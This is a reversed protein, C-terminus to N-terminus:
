LREGLYEALAGFGVSVQKEEALDKVTAEGAELEKEGIIVAYRAGSDAAFSLTKGVGKGILELVICADLNDRLEEAVKIAKASVGGLPIVVVDVSRAKFEYEQQELASLLRDFGFAFGVAPTDPGGFSSILNDYRGGGAIQDQAGLGDVKVDFVMGTYYDLGRAAGFDVTYDVTDNLLICLEKFNDLEFRTKELGDVIRQADAFVDFGGSLGALEMFREDGVKEGVEEMLGRDMLSIIIGCEDDSVGLEVLMRRLVGLHNLRLSYNLGFSKMCRSALLVVEADALPCAAGLLEVGTQYFERYRNKQPREYRFMAGHYFLRLPKPLTRLQQSYFRAVSATGEPRLCIDRGGKDQFAYLSDAIEVGSKALFLGTEEFLPTQIESYGSAELVSQLGEFVQRRCGAEVPTFDRTGRPRTFSM